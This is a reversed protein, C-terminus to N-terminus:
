TIIIRQEIDYILKTADCRVDDIYAYLDQLNMINKGIHKFFAIDDQQYHLGFAAKTNPNYTNTYYPIYGRMRVGDFYLIYFVGLSEEDSWSCLGLFPLGTETVHLGIFSEPYFSSISVDDDCSAGNDYGFVIKDLDKSVVPDEEIAEMLCGGLSSEDTCGNMPDADTMFAKKDFVEYSNYKIMFNLLEKKFESMTIRKAKRGGRKVKTLDDNLIIPLGM